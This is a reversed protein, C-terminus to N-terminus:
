SVEIEYLEKELIQSTYEKDSPKDFLFRGSFKKGALFLPMWYRDDPWMQDFPIEDAGFWKPRMEESETPEGDFKIVEFIHVELTDPDGKFEFNIVGRKTMEEAEIRAEERIERKAAEEISEGEKVKGGFGNWRGEGFGRKKMGLLINSREHVISLTLIKKM